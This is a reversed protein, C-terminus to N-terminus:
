NNFKGKIAKTDFFGFLNSPEWNLLDEKDSLFGCIM